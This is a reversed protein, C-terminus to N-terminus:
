MWTTCSYTMYPLKIENYVVYVKIKYFRIVQKCFQTSEQTLVVRKEYLLTTAPKTSTIKAITKSIKM